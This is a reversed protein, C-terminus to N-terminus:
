EDRVLVLYVMAVAGSATVIQYQDTGKLTHVADDITGTGSVLRVLVKDSVNLDLTSTIDTATGARLQQVKITDAAGGAATAVAYFDVLRTGFGLKPLTYTATGAVTQKQVVFLPAGYPPLPSDVGACNKGSIPM